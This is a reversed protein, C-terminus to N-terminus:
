DIVMSPRLPFIARLLDGHQPGDAVAPSSPPRILAVTAESYRRDPQNGADDPEWKKSHFSAPYNSPKTGVGARYALVIQRHM